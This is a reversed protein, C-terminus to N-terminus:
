FRLLDRMYVKGKTLGIKMAPTRREAKPIGKDESEVLMFNHYFGLITAAKNIM